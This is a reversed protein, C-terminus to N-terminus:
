FTKPKLNIIINHNLSHGNHASYIAPHCLKSQNNIKIASEIQKCNNFLLPMNNIETM